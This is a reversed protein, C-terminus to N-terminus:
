GHRGSRGRWARVAAAGGVVAILGAGALAGAPAGGSGDDVPARGATGVAVVSPSGSGSVAPDSSAATAAASSSRSRISAATSPAVASAGGARTATTRAQTASPTAQRTSPVASHTPRPTPTSTVAEGCEGIPYGAIGCVLGGETRVADHAYVSLVDFARAGADVDACFTDIGGPPHQGPPADAATGYDVVLGVLKRGAAAPAHSGCIAAFSSGTRPKISGAVTSVGFRWGDVSGAPSQYTAGYQSFTWGGSGGLWYTWYRYATADAATATVLPLVAATAVAVVLGVLRARTM